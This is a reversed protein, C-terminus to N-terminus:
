CFCAGYLKPLGRAGPPRREPKAVEGPNQTCRGQQEYQATQRKRTGREARPVVQLGFPFVARHGTAGRIAHFVVFSIARDRASPNGPTGADFKVDERSAAGPGNGAAPACSERDHIHNKAAQSGATSRAPVNLLFNRLSPALSPFQVGSM